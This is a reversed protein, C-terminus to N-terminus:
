DKVEEYDVYEGLDGKKGTKQKRQRGDAGSNRQNGGSFVRFLFRFAYYAFVAILLYRLLAM